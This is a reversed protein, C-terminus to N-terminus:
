GWSRVLSMNYADIKKSVDERGMANLGRHCPHM